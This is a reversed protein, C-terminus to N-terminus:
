SCGIATDENEMAMDIIYRVSTDKGREALTIGEPGIRRARPRGQRTGLLRRDRLGDRGHGRWTAGNPLYLCHPPTREFVNMREGLVGWDRGMASLRAKGEVM